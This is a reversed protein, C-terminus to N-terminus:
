SWTQMKDHAADKNDVLFSATVYSAGIAANNVKMYLQILDGAVMAGLTEEVTTSTTTSVETGFAVGNKYVQAYTIYTSDSFIFTSLRYTGARQAVFERVKVYTLSDTMTEGSTSSMVASTNGAAASASAVFDDRLALREALVGELDTAVFNGASDEIGVLSAGLANDNSSIEEKSYGRVEWVNIPM